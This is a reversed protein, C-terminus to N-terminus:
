KLQWLAAELDEKNMYIEQVLGYYGLQISMNIYFPLSFGLLKMLKEEKLVMQKEGEIAIQNNKLVYLYDFFVVREINSTVSFFFINHERLFECLFSFDKQNFPLDDSFFVMPKTLLKAIIMCKMELFQGNSFFQNCFFQFDENLNFYDIEEKWDFVSKREGFYFEVFSYKSFIEKLNQLLLSKGSGSEGLVCIFKDFVCSFHNIIVKDEVKVNIDEINLIGRM